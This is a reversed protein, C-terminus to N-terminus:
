LPISERGSQSSRKKKRRKNEKSPQQEGTQEVVQRCNRALLLAAGESESKQKEKAKPLGNAYDRGHTGLVRQMASPM